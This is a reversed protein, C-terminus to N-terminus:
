LEKDIVKYYHHTTHNLHDMEEWSTAAHSSTTKIDSQTARKWHVILIQPLFIILLRNQIIYKTLHKTIHMANETISTNTKNAQTSKDIHIENVMWMAERLVEKWHIKITNDPRQSAQVLNIQNELSFYTRGRAQPGQEPTQAGAKPIQLM